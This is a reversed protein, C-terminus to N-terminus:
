PGDGLFGHYRDITIALDDGLKDHWPKIGAQKAMQESAKKNYLEFLEQHYAEEREAVAREAVPTIQLRLYAASAAAMFFTGTVIASM